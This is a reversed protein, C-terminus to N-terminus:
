FDQSIYEIDQSTHAIYIKHHINLIKKQKNM